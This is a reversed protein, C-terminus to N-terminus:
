VFAIDVCREQSHTSMANTYSLHIDEGPNARIVPPDERGNFTFAAKGTTPDNIAKLSVPSRTEPPDSVLVPKSVAIASSPGGAELQVGYFLGLCTVCALFSRGAKVSPNTIM